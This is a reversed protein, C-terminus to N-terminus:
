VPRFAFTVIEDGDEDTTFPVMILEVDTGFQSKAPDNTSGIPQPNEDPRTSIEPALAKQM